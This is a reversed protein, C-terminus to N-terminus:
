FEIWRMSAGWSNGATAVTGFISIGNAAGVPLYIGANAPLFEFTGAGTSFLMDQQTGTPAISATAGNAACTLTVVSSTAGGAKLKVPTISTAYAPNTTTLYYKITTTAAPAHWRLSFIYISKGSNSANFLAMGMVLNNNTATAFATTTALFATGLLLQVQIQDATVVGTSTNNSADLTTLPSGQLGSFSSAGPPYVSNVPLGDAGLLAAPYSM